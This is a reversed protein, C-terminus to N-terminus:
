LWDLYVKFNLINHHWKLRCGEQKWVLYNWQLVSFKAEAPLSPPHKVNRGTSKTIAGSVTSAFCCDIMSLTIDQRRHSSANPCFSFNQTEPMQQSSLPAELETRCTKWISTNRTKPIQPVHSVYKLKTREQSTQTTHLHKPWCLQSIGAHKNFTRFSCM